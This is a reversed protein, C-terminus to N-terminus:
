HKDEHNLIINLYEVDALSHLLARFHCDELERKSLKFSSLGIILITLIIVFIIM